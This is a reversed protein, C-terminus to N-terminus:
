EATVITYDAPASSIDGSEWVFIFRLGELTATYVPYPITEYSDLQQGAPLKTMLSELTEVTSVEHTIEAEQESSVCLGKVVASDDVVDYRLTYDNEDEFIDDDIGFLCDIILACGLRPSNYELYVEESEPDMMLNHSAGWIEEVNEITMGIYEAFHKPAKSPDSIQTYGPTYGKNADTNEKKGNCSCMVTAAIILVLLLAITRKISRM